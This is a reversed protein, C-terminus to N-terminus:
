DHYERYDVGLVKYKTKLVLILHVFGLMKMDDLASSIQTM